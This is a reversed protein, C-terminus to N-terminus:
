NMGTIIKYIELYKLSIRELIDEPIRNKDYIGKKQSFKVYEKLEERDFNTQEKGIKFDKKLWFRSCDPTLLEDALYLTNNEDIGFEMKTDALIIGKTLLYEYARTYIEVATTKIQQAYEKGVISEFEQYTVEMDSGDEEKSTPTFIPYDLKQSLQLNSPLQIGCTPKGNVYNEYCSGAIHGRVICEVKFMNIRKALMCRDKFEEGSFYKPMKEIDTTIMHNPIIDKYKEFWFASLKNLVVGKNKIEYPLPTHMSIRDTAVVVVKEDDLLYMDRAKGSYYKKM